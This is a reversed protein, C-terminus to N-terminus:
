KGFVPELTNYIRSKVDDIILDNNLLVKIFPDAKGSRDWGRFLLAKVIYLRCKFTIPNRNFDFQLLQENTRITSGVTQATESQFQAKLIAPNASMRGVSALTGRPKNEPIIERIRFKGQLFVFLSFFSRM